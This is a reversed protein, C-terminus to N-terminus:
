KIFSNIQLEIGLNQEFLKKLRGQRWSMCEFFNETKLLKKDDPLIYDNILIERDGVFYKEPLVEHKSLNDGEFVVYKNWITDIISEAGEPLLNVKGKPFIHDIHLTNGTFRPKWNSKQVISFFLIIDSNLSDEDITTKVGSTLLYKEIENYPFKDFNEQQEIINILNDLHTNSRLNSNYKILLIYKLIGQYSKIKKNRLLRPNKYLFYIVPILFNFKKMIRDTLPTIDRLREVFQIITIKFSKEFNTKLQDLNKFAEYIETKASKGSTIILSKLLMDKSIGTNESLQRMEDEIERWNMKLVAFMLDSKELKLGGSNFRAFTELLESLEKQRVFQIKILDKFTNTDYFTKEIHEKIYWYLNELQDNDIDNIHLRNLVNKFEM